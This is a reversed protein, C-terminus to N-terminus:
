KIAKATIQDMPALMSSLDLVINALSTLNLNEPFTLKLSVPFELM